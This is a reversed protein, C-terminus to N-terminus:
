RNILIKINTLNSSPFNKEVFLTDPIESDAKVVPSLSTFPLKIDSLDIGAFIHLSLTVAVALWFKEWM